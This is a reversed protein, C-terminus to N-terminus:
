MVKIIFDNAGVSLRLLKPNVVPQALVRLQFPYTLRPCKFEQPLRPADDIVCSHDLNLENTYSNAVTENM